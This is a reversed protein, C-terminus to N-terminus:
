QAGAKPKVPAVPTPLSSLYAAVAEADEQTLRLMPMPPLAQSGDPRLGTKLFSVMQARSWGRAQPGAIAPATEAWAPVAVTPTFDITAGAMPRQLDPQGMAGRPTHCDGCLGVNEVLYRGRVMQRDGAQAGAVMLAAALTAGTVREWM